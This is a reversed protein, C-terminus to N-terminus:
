LGSLQPASCFRAGLHKIFYKPSEVFAHRTYFQSARSRRSHCHVELRDCHRARAELEARQLLQSGIGLGRSSEDICLYSVRCFDGALAIQPIFYLSIFGCVQSDRVAVLLLANPDTQQQLLKDAIFPQIGPYDLQELLHAIADGDDIVAKRIVM